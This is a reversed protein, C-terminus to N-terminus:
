AALAARRSRARAADVLGEFLRAHEPRGILCEAHWQVGLVFDRGPVEIAEVVEDRSWGVALVGRGLRDVAQHHFSNVWVETGGLVRAALSASALEVEHTLRDAAGTQRHEVAEGTVEPLHQVLTGGMAVNLLQAGRCLALVPLNRAHAERALAIEFRDLEPETPGLKPHPPAGYAAPDLDPGGSLCVGDLRDVLSEVAGVPLPPIVFPLGGAAEVAGPYSLGLALETRPPDGEPTAGVDKAPRLESTTVGILPRSRAGLREGAERVEGESIGPAAGM